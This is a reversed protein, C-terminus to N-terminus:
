RSAGPLRGVLQRFELIQAILAHRDLVMGEGMDVKIKLGVFLFDDLGAPLDVPRAVGLFGPLAHQFVAAVGAGPVTVLPLDIIPSSICRM